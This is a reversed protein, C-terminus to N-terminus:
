GIFGLFLNLPSVSSSSTAVNDTKVAKNDSVSLPEEMDVCVPSM